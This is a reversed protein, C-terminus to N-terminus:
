EFKSHYDSISDALSPINGVHGDLVKRVIKFSTPLVLSSSGGNSDMGDYLMFDQEMDEEEVIGELDYRVRIGLLGGPPITINGIEIPIGEDLENVEENVILSVVTGTKNGFDVGDGVSIDSLGVVGLSRLVEVGSGYDLSNPFGIGMHRDVDYKVRSVESYRPSLVDDEFPDYSRVEM